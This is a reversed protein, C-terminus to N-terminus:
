LKIDLEDLSLNPDADTKKTRAAKAPLAMMRKRDEIFKDCILGIEEDTLEDPATNFLKELSDVRVESLPSQNDSSNM